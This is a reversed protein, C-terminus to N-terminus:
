KLNKANKLSTLNKSKLNCYVPFFGCKKQRKRKLVAFIKTNLKLSQDLIKLSFFFSFATNIKAKVFNKIM